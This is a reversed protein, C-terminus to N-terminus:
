RGGAEFLSWSEKYMNKYNRIRLESVWPQYWDSVVARGHQETNYPSLVTGFEGRKQMGESMPHQQLQFDAPHSILMTSASFSIALVTPVKYCGPIVSNIGLLVPFIPTSAAVMTITWVSILISSNICKFSTFVLGHLFSQMDLKSNCYCIYNELYTSSSLVQAWWVILFKGFQYLFEAM